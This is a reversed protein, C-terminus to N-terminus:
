KRIKRDFNIIDVEMPFFVNAYKLIGSRNSLKTIGGSIILYKNRRLKIINRSLKPLFKKDPDVLGWNNKFLRDFVSFVLGNHMHGALVVDFNKLINKIDKNCMNMPNHVVCVNLKNNNSIFLNIDLNNYYEKENDLSCVSHYINYPQKFGVFRIYRDEYVSNNLLTVNLGDLDNCFKNYLLSYEKDTFVCERYIDHNGFICIVPVRKKNILGLNDLWSYFYSMDTNLTSLVDVLDGAIVIYNPKISDIKRKLKELKKNNFKCYYHIDSILCITRSTKIKKNILNYEKVHISIIDRRM